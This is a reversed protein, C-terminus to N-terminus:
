STKLVPPIRKKSRLLKRTLIYTANGESIYVLAVLVLFQFYLLIHDVNRIIIVKNQSTLWQIDTLLNLMFPEM